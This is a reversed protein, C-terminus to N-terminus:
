QLQNHSVLVELKYFVLLIYGLLERYFFWCFFLFTLWSLKVQLIATLDIHTPNRDYM